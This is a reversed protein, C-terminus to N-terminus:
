ARRLITEADRFFQAAGSKVDVRGFAMEPYTRILMKDLEGAGKPPAPPLPGVNKSVVALYSLMKKEVPDAIPILEDRIKEDGPVGREVRLIKAADSDAVLFQTFAVAEPKTESTRAISVLMSPKLYQGPQGGPLNPLMTMQLENKNLSQLAVIQNSHAFDIAVKGLTLPMTQLTNDQATLDGPTALGATRFAEWHGFYDAVDEETYGLGGGEGYLAKGRQRMFFEMMPEWRGKDSVGWYDAMGAKKIEGSVRKLDDWTWSADPVPIGLKAFTTADCCCFVSNTTWPVAYLKGDVRGSDLFAPNFATLDLGKGMYDDLPELQNRRAYEFLYRYDMQIVDAMNKGSAQTAMKPWYDDWGITEPDIVVDPVKQKYVEVVEYTRKNREPNGWWYFRMRTEALARRSAAGLAATGLAAGAVTGAFSRRTLNRM